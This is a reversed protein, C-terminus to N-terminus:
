GPRWARMLGMLLVLLLVACLFAGFGWMAKRRHPDGGPVVGPSAIMWGIDMRPAQLGLPIKGGM